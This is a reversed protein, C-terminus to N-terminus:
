SVHDTKKRSASISLAIAVISLIIAAASLALLVSIQSSLTDLAAKQQSMQDNVSSVLSQVQDDLTKVQASLDASPLANVIFNGEMGRQRHTTMGPAGVSCYYKFTGPFNAVLEVTTTNGVNRIRASKVNYPSPSSADLVWDHNVTDNSILTLRVTDGQNVVIDPGGQTGNYGFRVMYLAMQRVQPSAQQAQVQSYGNATLVTTLVAMITLLSALKSTM